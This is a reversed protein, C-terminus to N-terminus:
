GITQRKWHLASISQRRIDSDLRITIIGVVYVDEDMLTCRLLCSPLLRARWGGVEELPPLMEKHTREGDLCM